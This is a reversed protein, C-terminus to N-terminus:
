ILLRHVDESGAELKLGLCTQTAVRNDGEEETAKYLKLISILKLVPKKLRDSFRLTIFKFNGTRVLPKGKKDGIYYRENSICIGDPLGQVAPAFFFWAATSLCIAFFYLYLAVEHVFAISTLLKSAMFLTYGVVAFAQAVTISSVRNETTASLMVFIGLAVQMFESGIDLAVALCHALCYIVLM